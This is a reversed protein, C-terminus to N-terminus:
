KLYAVCAPEVDLHCLKFDITNRFPCRFAWRQSAYVQNDSLQYKLNKMFCGYHSKACPIEPGDKKKTVTYSLKDGEEFTCSCIVCDESGDIEKYEECKFPLNLFTWSKHQKQEMKVIRELSVRNITKNGYINKYRSTFCLYTRFQLIDKIIGAVIIARKADTYHDIITGTNRSYTIGFEKTMIFGNCLMDLNGFPAQSTINQKPVVVDVTIYVISGQSIFQYEGVLIQIGVKRVSQILPSYYGSNHKDLVTVRTYERTNKVSSIFADADSMSKFSVDMDAPLLCRDQTEPCHAKNWFKNWFKNTNRNTPAAEAATEDYIASYHQSIITDRVYGGFIVGSHDFAIDQMKEYASRKVQMLVTPKVSNKPM